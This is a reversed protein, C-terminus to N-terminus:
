LAVDLQLLVCAEREAAGRLTVLLPIPVFAMEVRHLLEGVEGLRAVHAQRAECDGPHQMLFAHGTRDDARAPRILEGCADFRWVHLDIGLQRLGAIRHPPIQRSTRHYIAIALLFSLPVWPLRLLYFRARM